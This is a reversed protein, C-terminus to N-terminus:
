VMTCRAAAATAESGGRHRAGPAGGRPVIAGAGHAFHGGRGRGDRQESCLVAGCLAPAVTSPTLSRPSLWVPRVKHAQILDRIFKESATPSDGGGVLRPPTGPIDAKTRVVLLPPQNAQIIPDNLCDRLATSVERETSAADYVFLGIQMGSSFSDALCCCLWVSRM